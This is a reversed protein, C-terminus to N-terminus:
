SRGSLEGRTYVVVWVSVVIGVGTSTVVVTSSSVMRAAELSLSVTM